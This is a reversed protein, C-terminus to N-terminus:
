STMPWHATASPQGDNLCKGKWLSRVGENMTVGPLAPVTQQLQPPSTNLEHHLLLCHWLSQFRGPQAPTLNSFATDRFSSRRRWRSAAFSAAASHYRCRRYHRPPALRVLMGPCRPMSSAVARNRGRSARRSSPRRSWRRSRPVAVLEEAGTEEDLTVRAAVTEPSAEHEASSSFSPQRSRVGPM